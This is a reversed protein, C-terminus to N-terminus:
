YPVDTPSNLLKRYTKDFRHKNLLKVAAFIALSGCIAFTGGLSLFFTLALLGIIPLSMVFCWHKIENSLQTPIRRGELSHQKYTIFATSKIM